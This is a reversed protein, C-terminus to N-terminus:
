EAPAAETGEPAAETGEPAAETGEPAAETGEPAAEEVGSEVPTEETTKHCCGSSLILGIGLVLVLLLRGLM